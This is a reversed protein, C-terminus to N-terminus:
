EERNMVDVFGITDACAKMLLHFRQNKTTNSLHILYGLGKADDKM